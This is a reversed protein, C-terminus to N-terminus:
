RDIYLWRHMSLQLGATPNYKAFQMLDFRAEVSGSLNLKMWRDAEDQRSAQEGRAEAEYRFVLFVIVHEAQTRFYMADAYV